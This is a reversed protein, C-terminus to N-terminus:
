KAGAVLLARVCTSSPLQVASSLGVTLILVTYAFNAGMVDNELSFAFLATAAAPGITRQISVLTQTLGNTPGLSRKNPPAARLRFHVHFSRRDPIRAGVMLMKALRIAQRQAHTDTSHTGRM